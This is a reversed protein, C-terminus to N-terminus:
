LKEDFKVPLMETYITTEDDSSFEIMLSGQRHRDQYSQITNYSYVKVDRDRDRNKMGSEVILNDVCKQFMPTMIWRGDSDKRYEGPTMIVMKCRVPSLREVGGMERRLVLGSLQEGLPPYHQIYGRKTGDAFESVVAVATCGELGYTAIKKNEGPAATIIKYENMGVLETGASREIEYFSSINYTEKNQLSASSESPEIMIFGRQSRDLAPNKDNYLSAGLADAGMVCRVDELGVKRRSEDSYSEIIGKTMVTQM